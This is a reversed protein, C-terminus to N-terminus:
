PRETPGPGLRDAQPAPVKPNAPFSDLNGTGDPPEKPRFHYNGSELVTQAASGSLPLNAFVRDAFAKVYFRALLISSGVNLKPVGPSVILIGTFRAM